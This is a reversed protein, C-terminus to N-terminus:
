TITQTSSFWVHPTTFDPGDVITGSVPKSSDYLVPSSKEIISLGAENTVKFQVTYLINMTLNLNVFSYETYNSTLEIWDILLIEEASSDCSTNKWLSVEYTEIGSEPDSYNTWQVRITSNDSTYALDMNYFPGSTMAGYL